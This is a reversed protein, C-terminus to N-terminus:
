KLAQARRHVSPSVDDFLTALARVKVDNISEAGGPPRYSTDSLFTEMGGPTMEEIESPNKRLWAGRSVERFAERIEVNQVGTADAVARAGYAARVLPSAWVSSIHTGWHERVYEAAARAEAEGRISLPVDIDGGYRLFM